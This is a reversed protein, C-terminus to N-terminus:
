AKEWALVAVDTGKRNIPCALRLRLGYEASADLLYQVQWQAVLMALGGGPALVRYMEDLAISLMDCTSRDYPPETAIASFMDDDFPLQTADAVYHRAGLQELGPRLRSDVDVSYVSYGSDLAELVIGGAGAFPDLFVLEKSVPATRPSVLNVLLRADAVPLGRRSLASGSGRYGKVPRVEGEENELWFTRRDPARDRMLQQDEEYVRVLNYKGGRWAITREHQQIETSAPEVHEAPLVRDVAYSYGLRSLLQIAPQTFSPAVAIWFAGKEGALPGRLPAIPQLPRLLSLVELVAPVRAKIRSQRMYVVFLNWDDPIEPAWDIYPSQWYHGSDLM